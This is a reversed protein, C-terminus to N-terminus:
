VGTALDGCLFWAQSCAERWGSVTAKQAELEKLSGHEGM